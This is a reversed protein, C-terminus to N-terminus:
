QVPTAPPKAPTVGPHHEPPKKHVTPPQPQHQPPTIAGPQILGPVPPPATAPTDAYIGTTWAAGLFAAVFLPGKKSPSIM